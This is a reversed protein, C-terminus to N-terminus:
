RVHPPSSASRQNAFTPDTPILTGIGQHILQQIVWYSGAQAPLRFQLMADKVKDKVEEFPSPKPPVIATLEAINNTGLGLYEGREHHTGDAIVVM